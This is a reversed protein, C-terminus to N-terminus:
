ILINADPFIKPKSFNLHCLFYNWKKVHTHTHNYPSHKIYIKHNQSWMKLDSSSKLWFSFHCESLLMKLLWSCQFDIQLIASFLSLFSFVSIDLFFLPYAVFSFLSSLLAPSASFDCYCMELKYFGPQSIPMLSASSYPSMHTYYFAISILTLKGIQM